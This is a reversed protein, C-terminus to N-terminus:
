RSVMAPLDHGAYAELAALFSRDKWAAKYADWAELFGIKKLDACTFDVVVSPSVKGDPRVLLTGSPSREAVRAAAEEQLSFPRFCLELQGALEKEKRELLALFGAYQAESPELREWLRAATGLKMLRGTNFRFAGLGLALDIVAEADSLNIKTPAFTVELPLGAAAVRRCADVAKAFDGHVRQRGYTEQSAGDLSIQISRIGLGKLADVDFNQGNTEIKLLCGGDSLTKCVELFHPVITPEGGVVMVYPVGAAAIERSLKLAQERTLEGPLAKGPASDTCCHLCALDCDKTLQWTVMSPSRLDHINM